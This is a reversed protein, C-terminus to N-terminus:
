SAKALKRESIALMRNKWTREWGPLSRKTPQATWYESFELTHNRLEPISLAPKLIEQAWALLEETVTFGSHNFTSLKKRDPAGALSESAASEMQDRDSRIEMEDVDLSVHQTQVSEAGVRSLSPASAGNPSRLAIVSEDYLWTDPYNHPKGNKAQGEAIQLVAGNTFVLGASALQKIFSAIKTGSWSRNACLSRVKAPTWPYCGADDQAVLLLTYLFAAGDSVLAVKDSTIIGAYVKRWPRV